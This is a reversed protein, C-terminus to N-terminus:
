RYSSFITRQRWFDGGKSARLVNLVLWNLAERQGKQFMSDRKNRQCDTDQISRSALLTYEQTSNAPPKPNTGEGVRLVNLVLWNLTERQGKRFM